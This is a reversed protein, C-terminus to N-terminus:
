RSCHASRISARRRLAAQRAPCLDGRWRAAALRGPGDDEPHPLPRPGVRGGRGPAGREGGDRPLSVVLEVTEGRVKSGSHVCANVLVEDLGLVIEERALLTFGHAELLSRLHSRVVRIAEAEPVIRLEVELEPRPETAAV